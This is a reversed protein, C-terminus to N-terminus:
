KWCGLLKRILIIQGIHYTTHNALFLAERIMSRETGDALPIFLEIDPNNLLSIFAERDLKFQNIVTTWSEEVPENTAPVWYEEPWKRPKYNPNQCFHLIEAQTIQIHNLLDWISYTLSEPKTNKLSFPINDVADELDIGSTHGRLLDSLHKKITDAIINAPPVTIM